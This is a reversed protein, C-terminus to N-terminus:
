ITGPRSLRVGTLIIRRNLTLMMRLGGQAMPLRLNASTAYTDSYGNMGLEDIHRLPGYEGMTGGWQIAM